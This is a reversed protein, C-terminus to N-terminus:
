MTLKQTGGSASSIGFKEYIDQLNKEAVTAKLEM